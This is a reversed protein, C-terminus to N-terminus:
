AQKGAAETAPPADESQQQLHAAAQLARVTPRRRRKKGPAPKSPAPPPTLGITRQALRVLTQQRTLEQQLREHQRRLATLEREANHGPGRPRPACAEVLGHMARGELQYYRPLSVGLTEAAQTPTRAGALVELIVAALRQAERGSDQGLRLGGPSHSRKTPKPPPASASAVTTAKAVTVSASM